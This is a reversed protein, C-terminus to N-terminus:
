DTALYYTSRGKLSSAEQCTQFPDTHQHSVAPQHLRDGDVGVLAARGVQPPPSLRMKWSDVQTPRSM